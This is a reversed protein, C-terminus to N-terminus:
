AERWDRLNTSIPKRWKTNRQQCTANLRGKNEKKHLVYFVSKLKHELLPLRFHLHVGKGMKCENTDHYTSRENFVSELHISEEWSNNVTHTLFLCLWQPRLLASRATQTPSLAGGAALVLFHIGTTAECAPWESSFITEMDISGISIKFRVRCM